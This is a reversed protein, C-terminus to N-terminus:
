TSERNEAGLPAEKVFVKFPMDLPGIEVEGIDEFGLWRLWKHHITNRTDAHAQLFGWRQHMEFLNPALVKHLGMARREASRTAFLWIVGDDGGWFCLPTGNEDLAVRTFEGYQLIDLAAPGFLQGTGAFWEAMDAFRIDGLVKDLDGPRPERVEIM